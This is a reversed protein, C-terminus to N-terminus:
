KKGNRYLFLKLFILPYFRILFITIAISRDYFFTNYINKLSFLNKDVNGKLYSIDDCYNDSYKAIDKVTRYILLKSQAFKIYKMNIKGNIDKAFNQYGDAILKKDLLVRSNFVKSLSGKRQMYFYLAEDIHSIKRKYLIKYILELDEHYRVEESFRYKEFIEKKFIKNWAFNKIHSKANLYDDEINYLDVNNSLIELEVGNEDVYQIDCISIDANNKILSDLMLKLFNIHLYDDSDIFVIFSGTVFNLGYNRASSLGGNIKKYVKFRDDNCIYEEVIKISDDQSGDDIILCEFNEYSQNLISVICKDIYNEVNYVPLIISIKV